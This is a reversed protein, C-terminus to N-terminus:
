EIREFWVLGEIMDDDKETSLWTIGLAEAVGNVGIRFQAPAYEKMPGGPNDLMYQFMMWYEGTVHEFENVTPWTADRRTAALAAKPRTTSGPTALELTFNLYGPHFYTGTYADIPLTTSMAPSPRDPYYKDIARNLKVDTKEQWDENRLTYITLMM